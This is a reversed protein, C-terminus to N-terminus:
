VSVQGELLDDSHTLKTGTPTGTTYLIVATDSDARAAVEAVPDIGALLGGFSDPDVIMCTSGAATAGPGAAQACEPGAFVMRAQSDALYFAVERETLRVDMPVAVCGARLAGYYTIAFEAGDPLMIAVREGPEIGQARLLGAVQASARDLDNFAGGRLAASRILNHAYNM